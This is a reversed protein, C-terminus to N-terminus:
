QFEMCPYTCTFTTNVGSGFIAVVKMWEDATISARTQIKLNFPKVAIQKTNKGENLKVAYRGTEVDYLRLIIGYQGNLDSRRILKQLQVKMGVIPMKEPIEANPPNGIGWWFGRIVIESEWHKELWEQLKHLFDTDHATVPEIALSGMVGCAPWPTLTM